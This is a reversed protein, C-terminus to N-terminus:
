RGPGSPKAAGSTGSGPAAARAIPNSGDISRRPAVASSGTVPPTATRVSAQGTDRICLWSSSPRGSRVSGAVTSASASRASM